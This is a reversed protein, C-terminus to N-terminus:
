MFLSLTSVLNLKSVLLQFSKSMMRKETKDFSMCENFPTNVKNSHCGGYLNPSFATTGVYGFVCM